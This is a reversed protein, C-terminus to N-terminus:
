CVNMSPPNMTGTGLLRINYMPWIEGRCGRWVGSLAVALPKMTRNWTYIHLGDAMGEGEDGGNGEM